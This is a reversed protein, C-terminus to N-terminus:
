PQLAETLWAMFDTWKEKFSPMTFGDRNQKRGKLQLM